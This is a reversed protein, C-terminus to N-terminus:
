TGVEMTRITAQWTITTTAAGTVRLRAKDAGDDCDVTVDWGSVDEAAALIDPSGVVAVTTGANNKCTGIITYSAGNNATCSAGATCHAVVTAQLTMVKASTVPFACTALTTPTSQTADTTTQRCQYVKEAIDDNTASSELRFVENGLVPESVQLRASPAVLCDQDCSCSAGSGACTGTGADTCVQNTTSSCAGGGGVSLKGHHQGFNAEGRFRFSQNSTCSTLREVDIPVCADLTVTGAGTCGASLPPDKMWLASVQDAHMTNATNACFAPQFAYGYVGSRITNFVSTGTLSLNGGIARHANQSLVSVSAFDSVSSNARQEISTQDVFTDPLYPEVNNTDSFFTHKGIFTNVTYLVPDVTNEITGETRVGVIISVAGSTTLSYNNNLTVLATGNPLDAIPALSIGTQTGTVPTPMSPWLLLADNVIVQGKTNHTTSRLELDDGSATGGTIIQGGALGGSVIDGLWIWTNGVRCLSAGTKSTGTDDTETYFMGSTCSAPRDATGVPTLLTKSSLDVEAAFDASEGIQGGGDLLISPGASVTCTGAACSVDYTAGDFDLVQCAHDEVVGAEAIALDYTEGPPAPQAACFSALLLGLAILAGVM